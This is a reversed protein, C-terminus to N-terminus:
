KPLERVVFVILLCSDYDLYPLQGPSKLFDFVRAAQELWGPVWNRSIVESKVAAVAVVFVWCDVSLVCVVFLM